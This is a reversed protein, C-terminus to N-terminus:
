WLRRYEFEDLAPTEVEYNIIDGYKIHEKGCVGAAELSSFVGLLKAKGYIDYGMVVFIESEMTKLSEETCEVEEGKESLVYDCIDEVEEPKDLYVCKNANNVAMKCKQGLPHLLYDKPVFLLERVVDEVTDLSAESVEITNIRM